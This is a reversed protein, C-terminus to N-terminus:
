GTFCNMPIFALMSFPWLIYRGYPLWPVILCVALAIWFIIAAKDKM